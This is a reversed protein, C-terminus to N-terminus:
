DYASGVRLVKTNPNRAIAVECEKKYNRCIVEQKFLTGANFLKM